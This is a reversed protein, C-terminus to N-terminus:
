LCSHVHVTVAVEVAWAEDVRNMTQLRRISQAPFFLNFVLYNEMPTWTEIYSWRITGRKSPEMKQWHLQIISDICHFGMGSYIAAPLGLAKFVQLFYCTFSEKGSVCRKTIINLRESACYGWLTRQFTNHLFTSPINRSVTQYNPFSLFFDM